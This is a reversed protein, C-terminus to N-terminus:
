HRNQNTYYRYRHKKLIAVGRSNSAGHSFIIEGDWEREWSKVCKTTSHTEQLFHINGKSTKLWKFIAIRKTEGSLGRVNFSSRFGYYFIYVKFLIFKKDKSRNSM